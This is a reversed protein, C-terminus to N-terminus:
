AQVPLLEVLKFAELAAQEAIRRDTPVLGIRTRRDLLDDITLAGEHTIGFIMEAMTTPITESIPTHLAPDQSATGLVPNNLVLNAERGYRRVLRAPANLGRLTRRPAAGLLPLNATLCPGADLHAYKVAHDIADAAMTRYTTLKGGVVTIVGNRSTIVAHRRSLDATHGDSDLLPRLGAFAGVVDSRTLPQEIVRNMTSLLFDIETEAPLPIDPVDGHTPEDTLGIYTLGDPQPLAFVFRNTEGPVPVTLAATPNGLTHSRVVIHTGRSPKLRVEPVLNSAWVGTANIVTRASIHLTEGTRTDTVTAGEGTIATAKTHTLIRANLAAATRALGIVLRADDELQGDWALLGGRLAQQRLAPALSATRHASIFRPSPLVSTPTHATRRLVDGAIFGIGALSSQMATVPPALPLLMPVPRTLHPATRSMLIGREVASEYAVDFQAKALYRLGGHVLKSSWRSTGWAMDHADIAVVSLGRAAADLAAGAGTVGLGVVLVDVTNTSAFNLDAERRQANLAINLSTM